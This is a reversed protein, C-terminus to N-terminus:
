SFSRSVPSTVQSSPAARGSSAVTRLPVISPVTPSSGNFATKARSGGSGPACFGAGGVLM